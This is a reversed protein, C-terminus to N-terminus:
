GKLVRSADAEVVRDWVESLGALLDGGGSAVRIFSQDDLIELSLSTIQPELHANRNLIPNDKGSVWAVNHLFMVNAAVAWVGSDADVMQTSAARNEDSPDCALYRTPGLGAFAIAAACMACPSHTSWVAWQTLDTDHPVSALANMEAHAVVTGQLPDSGGPPDYVRNRGQSLVERDNAVVAGVPLGRQALSIWAQVLGVRFPGDLGEWAVELNM